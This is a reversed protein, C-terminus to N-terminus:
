YGIWSFLILKFEIKINLMSAQTENTVYNQASHVLTNINANM